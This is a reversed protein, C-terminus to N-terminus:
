INYSTDEFDPSRIEEHIIQGGSNAALLQVGFSSLGALLLFLYIITSNTNEKRSLVLGVVSLAGLILSVLVATEAAEEHEHILTHTLTTAGEEVIHEAKEGTKDAIVSFIAAFIFTYLGTKKLTINKSIIGIALLISGFLTGIIPFHNVLLHIHVANM